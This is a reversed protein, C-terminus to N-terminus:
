GPEALPFTRVSVWKNGAMPSILDIHRAFFRERNLYSVIKDKVFVVRHHSIERAVTVHPQYEKYPLPLNLGSYLCIYLNHLEESRKVKWFIVPYDPYYDGITTLEIQMVPQRATERRVIGTIEDLSRSSEFPFVVTIHSAVLNYLPDYKERLPTIIEDLHPPLFIVVAYRNQVRDEQNYLLYNFQASM